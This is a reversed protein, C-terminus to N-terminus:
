RHVNQRILAIFYPLYEIQQNGAGAIVREALQNAYLASGPKSPDERMDQVARLLLRVADMMSEPLGSKQYLANFGHEGRDEILKEANPLPISAFQSLSITFFDIQGRCLATMVISPTLRDEAAMQGVLDQMERKTLSHNLLRVMIDERVASSDQKVDAYDLKYKQRLQQAVVNSVRSVIREVVAIPLDPKSALADTVEANGRFDEAIKELTRESVKAGANGLLSTMVQAYQTEVLADSVRNSVTERNAIAVLKGVDQSQEVITVLDADSLVKSERLVPIAVSEVDSAIHLIIDRPVSPNSKIRDSLNQRVRLAVDKMMLRFVQEAIERARGQLENGNYGVSIKELVDNRSEPSDDSLLREVDRQSLIM